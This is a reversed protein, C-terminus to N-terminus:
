LSSLKECYLSLLFRKEYISYLLFRLKICFSIYLLSHTQWARDIDPAFSHSFIKRHPALHKFSLLLLHRVVSFSKSVIAYLTFSNCHVNKEYKVNCLLLFNCVIVIYVVYSYDDIWNGDVVLICQIVSHTKLLKRM